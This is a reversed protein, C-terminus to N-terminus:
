AATHALTYLSSSCNPDSSQLVTYTSIWWRSYCLTYRCLFRFTKECDRWTGAESGLSSTLLPQPRNLTIEYSYYVSVDHLMARPQTIIMYYSMFSFAKSMVLIIGGELM